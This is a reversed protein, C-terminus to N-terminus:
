PMTAATATSMMAQGQASAECRGHRDHHAHAPTRLLAHQDLVGCREFPELLHVRDNDVLRARQRFALRSDGVQHRCGAELLILHEPQRGADLLRALM